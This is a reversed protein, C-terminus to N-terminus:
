GNVVENSLDDIVAQEYERHKSDWAPRLFPEPTIKGTSQRGTVLGSRKTKRYREATGYEIIAALGQASIKPFLEKSNKVVGIKIGSDDAHMSRTTVGIMAAIRSSKSNRRMPNLIIDAHRTKLNRLQKNSVAMGMREIDKITKRFSRNDISIFNNSM